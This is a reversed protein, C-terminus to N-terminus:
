KRRTYAIKMTQNWAEEGAVQEHIEFLKHDDDTYTTIMKVRKRKGTMCCTHEGAILTLTHTEPDYDGRSVMLMPNMTDIWSSVYQKSEPEYTMQAIGKFPQGAFEMEFRSVLFFDGFMENTETGTSKTPPAGPAMWMTVEADWTGAERAMQAHEETPQPFQQATATHALLLSLVGSILRTSIKKQNTQM